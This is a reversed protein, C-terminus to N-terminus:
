RHQRDLEKRLQELVSPHAIIGRPTVYYCPIQKTGYRKTWKKQVRNHYSESMSQTKNHKRIPETTTALHNSFVPTGHIHIIPPNETNYNYM